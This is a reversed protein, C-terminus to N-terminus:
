TTTRPRQLVGKRVVGMGTARPQRDGEAASRDAPKRVTVPVQPQRPERDGPPHRHRPQQLAEAHRPEGAQRNRSPHTRRAPQRGLDLLRLNTLDGIEPPIEGTLRNRTEPDSDKGCLMLKELTGIRGIEPPIPGTLKNQCLDLVVLAPFDGIEPPIPGRLENGFLGLYWLYPLEIIERPISGTFSNYSLDLIELGEIRGLAPQLPGELYNGFLGLWKLNELEGIEPPLPGELLNKELHLEELENLKSIEPPITGVLSNEILNLLRVRGDENLEVGYWESLPADTTWNTNTAWLEGNTAEFFATLAFEDRNMTTVPASASLQQLTATIDVVGESVAHVWGAPTVTAVSSDSTAWTFRARAILSGGADFARAKMRLSDGMALLDLPSEVSMSAAVQEVEVRTSGGASLATATIIATGNGTATLLGGDDIAAVAPNSTSWSVSLGPVAHGNADVVVASLRLTDGLTAFTHPGAPQIRVGAPVQRVEAVVSDALDDLAARIFATGVAVGTVLGTSDVTAISTDASSWSVEAGTIPRGNPDLVTATVRATDELADLIRREPPPIRVSHPRQRVAVRASDKVEGSAAVIYAEGNDVATVRGAQDVRAVEFSSSQWAVPAGTMVNGNQDFVTAVLRDTAFLAEFDLSEPSVDLATPVPEPLDIGPDACAAAVGLAALPLISKARIM